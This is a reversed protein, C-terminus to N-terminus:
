YEKDVWVPKSSGTLTRYAYIAKHIAEPDNIPISEQIILYVMDEDYSVTDNLDGVKFMYGYYNKEIHSYGVVYVQDSSNITIGAQTLVDSPAKGSISGMVFAVVMASLGKRTKFVRLQIDRRTKFPM